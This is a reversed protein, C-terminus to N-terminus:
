EDQDVQDKGDEEDEKKNGVIVKAPIIVKNNLMYGPKVEKKVKNGKGELAEMKEHDFEEGEAKIEEVGNSELVERFQKVVYEVGKVWPSDKEEEGVHRLSIKLNDFVPLLEQLLNENSYKVFEKKEEEKRKQLNHYDALARDCRGALEQNEKELEKIKTKLKQKDKKSGSGSEKEKEQEKNQEKEKGM